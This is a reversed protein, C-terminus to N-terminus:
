KDLLQKVLGAIMRVDGSVGQNRQTSALSELRRFADEQARAEMEIQEMRLAHLEKANEIDLKRKKEAAEQEARESEGIEDATIDKRMSVSDREIKGLREKRKADFSRRIGDEEQLQQETARTREDNAAKLRAEAERRIGPERAHKISQEAAIEAKTIDEHVKTYTDRIEILALKQAQLGLPDKNAGPKLSLRELAVSAERLADASAQAEKHSRQLWQHLKEALAVLGTFLGVVVGIHGALKLTAGITATFAKNVDKIGAFFGKSSETSEQQMKRASQQVQTEAQKLGSSLEDRKVWLRVFASGIERLGM